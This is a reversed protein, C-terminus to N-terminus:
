TADPWFAPHPNFCPLGRELRLDSLAPTADPWFAPHPNFGAHEMLISLCRSLGLNCGAKQGSSSQFPTTAGDCTVQQFPELQM